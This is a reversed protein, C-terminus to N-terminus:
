HNTKLEQVHHLHKKLTPLTDSAFSRLAKDQGSKAYDSFLSVAEKHADTQIAIYQQDFASDSASDLRDLLAQHKEDLSEAAQLKSGSSELVSKLKEATKTHDDVMKQAFSKLEDNHSKNLALQSSEIEFENAVSAKSVFDQALIGKANAAIAVFSLVGALGAAIIINRPRM